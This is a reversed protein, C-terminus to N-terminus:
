LSTVPGKLLKSMYTRLYKGDHEVNKLDLDPVGDKLGNRIEERSDGYTQHEEM